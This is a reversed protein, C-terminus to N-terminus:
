MASTTSLDTRASMSTMANAVTVTLTMSDRSARASPVTQDKVAYHTKRATPHLVTSSRSVIGEMEKIVQSVRVNM